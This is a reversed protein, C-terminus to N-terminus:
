SKKIIDILLKTQTELTNTKVKKLGNKILTERLTNNQILRKVAEEIETVNKPSVFLVNVEHKLEDPIGGVPTTIVPLSNAMAEWIVRPFGEHYSPLIFIDAERYAGNLEDGINLKGSFTVVKELKSKKVLDQLQKTLKYSPDLEWGVIKLTINWGKEFLQATAEILEFLGKAEDIRGVYLLNITSSNNNNIKKLHFDKLSLTTTKIEHLKNCRNEYKKFLAKSNVLLNNQKLNREFLSNNIRLYYKIAIGRISKTPWFKAAEEYDGVVMFWLKNKNTIYKHFFPALACPMRVLVADCSNLVEKYSNLFKRHFIARHWAPTTNGLNLFQINKARLQYDNFEDEQPTASHMLIILEDVNLALEDIFVGLHGPLFLANNKTSIPIHYYFALQM